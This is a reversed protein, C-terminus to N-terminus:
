LHLRLGIPAEGRLQVYDYAIDTRIAKAVLAFIFGSQTGGGFLYWHPFALTSIYPRPEGYTMLLINERTSVDRGTLVYISM